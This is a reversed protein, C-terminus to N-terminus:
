CPSLKEGSDEELTIRPSLMIDGRLYPTTPLCLPSTAVVCLELLLCQVPWLLNSHLGLRFYGDGLSSRGLGLLVGAGQGWRKPTWSREEGGARQQVRNEPPGAARCPAFGLNQAGEAPQMKAPQHRSKLGSPVSFNTPVIKFSCPLLLILM